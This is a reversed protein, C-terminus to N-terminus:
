SRRIMDSFGPTYMAIFDATVKVSVSVKVTSHRSPSEHGTTYAAPGYKQSASLHCDSINYM